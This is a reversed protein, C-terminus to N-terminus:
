KAVHGVATMKVVEATDGAATGMTGLDCQGVSEDRVHSLDVVTEVSEGLIEDIQDDQGTLPAYEDDDDGGGNRKRYRQVLIPVAALTCFVAIAILNLPNWFSFDKSTLHQISSGLRAYVFSPPLVGFFTALFFTRLPVQLHPSSLNIFWNPILPAVRLFVIYNFLQHRQKAVQRSWNALRAALYREVLPKGIADSLLYSISAGVASCTAVLTLALPLPFLAGGLVTMFLSGPVCFTQLFTYAVLYTGSVTPFHTHSIHLTAAALSKLQDISRPLKLDQKIEEPIAPSTVYLLGFFSVFVSAVSVIVIVPVTWSSKKIHSRVRYWTTPPAADSTCLPQDQNSNVPICVHQSRNMSSAAAVYGGLLAHNSDGGGTCSQTRRHGSGVTSPSAPIPKSPEPGDYIDTSGYRSRHSDTGFSEPLGPRTRNGNGMTRSPHSHLDRLLCDATSRRIHFTNPPTSESRNCATMAAAAPAHAHSSSLAPPLTM